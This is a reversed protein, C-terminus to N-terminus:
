IASQKMSFHLGTKVQVDALVNAPIGGQTIVGDYQYSVVPIGARHAALILNFIFLCELGHIILVPIRKKLKCPALGEFYLRMGVTNEIYRRNDGFRGYIRANAIANQCLVDVADLIPQVERVFSLVWKARLRKNMQRKTQLATALPRCPIVTTIVDVTNKIAWLGCTIESIEINVDTNHGTQRRRLNAHSKSYYKSRKYQRPEQEPQVTAVYSVQSAVTNMVDTYNEFAAIDSTSQTEYMNNNTNHGVKCGRATQMTTICRKARRVAVTIQIRVIKKWYGRVWETAAAKVPRTNVKGACYVMSLRAQKYKKDSVGLRKATDERDQELHKRLPEYGTAFYLGHPHCDHIDSDTYDNGALCDLRCPRHLGQFGIGHETLRGGKNQISFTADQYVQSTTGSDPASRGRIHQIAGELQSRKAALSKLKKRQNRHKWCQKELAAIYKESKEPNWKVTARNLIAVVQRHLSSPKKGLRNRPKKRGHSNRSFINIEHKCGSIEHLDLVLQMIHEPIRFVRCLHKDKDHRMVRLVGSDVLIEWKAKPFFGGRVFGFPKPIWRTIGNRIYYRLSDEIVNCLFEWTQQREDDTWHQQRELKTLGYLAPAVHRGMFFNYSPPCYSTPKKPPIITTSM